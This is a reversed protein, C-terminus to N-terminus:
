QPFWNRVTHSHCSYHRSRGDQEVVMDEYASSNVPRPITASVKIRFFLREYRNYHFTISASKFTCNRFKIVTWRVYIM